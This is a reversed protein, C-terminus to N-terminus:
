SMTEPFDADGEEIIRIAVCAVQKAEDIIRQIPQGQLMAQALEGVEEVLAALMHANGPFKSRAAVVEDDILMKTNFLPAIYRTESTRKFNEGLPGHDCNRYSARIGHKDDSM